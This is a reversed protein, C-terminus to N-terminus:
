AGVIRALEHMEKWHNGFIYRPIEWRSAAQTVPEPDGTVAALTGHEAARQPFYEEVLYPSRHGYPYAFLDAGPNPAIRMIMERARRVQWDADEYSDIRSFDGKAQERQRVSDLSISLHDWSHNAIHFRGSAVAPQWWRDSMWPLGLMDREQITARALPSAIVFSTAHIGTGGGHRMDFERMITDFSPQPGHVPHDLDVFDMDMGDDFTLACTKEPLADLRGAILREAIALLPLVAVRAGHLYELIEPLARFDEANGCHFTLVSVRQM